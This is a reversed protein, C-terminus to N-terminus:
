EGPKKFHSHANTVCALAGTLIGQVFLLEEYEAHTIDPAHTSKEITRITERIHTSASRLRAENNTHKLM